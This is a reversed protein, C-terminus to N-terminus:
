LIMDKPWYLQQPGDRNSNGFLLLHFFFCLAVNKGRWICLMVYVIHVIYTTKWAIDFWNLLVCCTGHKQSHSVFFVQFLCFLIKIMPQRIKGINTWHMHSNIAFFFNLQFSILSFCLFLKECILLYIFLRARKQLEKLQYAFTVCICVYTNLM